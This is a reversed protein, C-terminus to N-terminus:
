SVCEGDGRLSPRARELEAIENVYSVHSKVVDGYTLEASETSLGANSKLCLCQM